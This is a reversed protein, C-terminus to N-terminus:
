VQRQYGLQRIALMLLHLQICNPIDMNRGDKNVNLAIPSLATLPIKVNLGKLAVVYKRFDRSKRRAARVKTKRRRVSKSHETLMTSTTATSLKKMDYVDTM